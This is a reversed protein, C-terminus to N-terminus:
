VIRSGEPLYFTLYLSRNEKLQYEVRMIQNSQVLESIAQEIDNAVVNPFESTLKVKLEQGKLGHNANILAIAVNRIATLDYM